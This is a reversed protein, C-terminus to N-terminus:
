SAFNHLQIGENCGTVHMLELHVKIFVLFHVSAYYPLPHCMEATPVAIHFVLWTEM